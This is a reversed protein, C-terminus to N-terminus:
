SMRMSRDLNTTTVHRSYSELTRRSVCISVSTMMAIGSLDITVEIQSLIAVRHIDVDLPTGPNPDPCSKTERRHALEDQCSEPVFM